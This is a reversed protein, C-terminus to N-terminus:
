PKVHLDFSEFWREMDEQAKAHQHLLQNHLKLYNEKLEALKKQTNPTKGHNAELEALKKFVKSLEALLENSRNVNAQLVDYTTKRSIVM